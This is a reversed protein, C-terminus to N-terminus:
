LCIIQIVMDADEGAQSAEAMSTVDDEGEWRGNRESEMLEAREEGQAEGLRREMAQVVSALGEGNSDEDPEKEDEGELGSDMDM